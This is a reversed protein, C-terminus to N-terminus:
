PQQRRINEAQASKINGVLRLFVATKAGDAKGDPSGIVAAVRCATAPQGPIAADFDVWRGHVFLQAWEHGGLVDRDNGFSPAYVLGSVTRAPIGAARAVAVLLAAHETCDGKATRIAESATGGGVGMTKNTFKRDVWDRIAIARALDDKIGAFRRGASAILPDAANFQECSQLYARLQDDLESPQSAPYDPRSLELVVKERTSEVTKQRDSQPLELPADVPQRLHLTLRLGIIGQEDELPPSLRALTAVFLEAVQFQQRAYDPSCAEARLKLMPGMDMVLVLERFDENVWSHVEAPLSKSATVIHLARVKRGLVEVDEHGVRRATAQYVGSGSQDSDYASYTVTDGDAKLNEARLRRIAAEFRVSKDWPQKRTLQQGNQTSTLELTGGVIRGERLVPTQGVLMYQSFRVPLGDASEESTRSIVMKVTQKGAGVSLKLGSFTEVNGGPLTREREVSYGARNGNLYAVYYQEYDWAPQSAPQTAPAAVAASNLLTAVVLGLFRGAM